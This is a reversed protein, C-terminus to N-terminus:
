NFQAIVTVVGHYQGPALPTVATVAGGVSFSLMGNDIAGTVQVPGGFMASADGGVTGVGGTNIGSTTGALPTVGTTGTLSSVPTVTRVTITQGSETNVVDFTAPVGVSVATGAAGGIRVSANVGGVAGSRITIGASLTQPSISFNLNSLVAISAPESISASVQGSVTSQAHSLDIPALTPLAIATAIILNQGWRPCHKRPQGLFHTEQPFDTLVRLRPFTPGCGAMITAGCTEGVAM